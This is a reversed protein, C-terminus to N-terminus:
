HKRNTPVAPSRSSRARVSRSHSRRAHGRRDIIRVRDSGYRRNDARDTQGARRAFAGLIRPRRRGIRGDQGYQRGIRSVRPRARDDRRPAPTRGSGRDGSAPHTRRTRSSRRRDRRGDRARDQCPQRDRGRRRARQRRARRVPPGDAAEASGDAPGAGRIAPDGRHRSDPRSRFQGRRGFIGMRAHSLAAPSSAARCAGVRTRDTELRVVGDIRRARRLFVHARGNAMSARPASLRRTGSVARGANRAADARPRGCRESVGAMDPGCQRRYRDAAGGVTGGVADGYRHDDPLYARGLVVPRALRAGRGRLVRLEDVIM